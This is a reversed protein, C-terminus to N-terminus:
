LADISNFMCNLLSVHVCYINSSANLRMQQSVNASNLFIYLCASFIEMLTIETEIQGIGQRARIEEEM